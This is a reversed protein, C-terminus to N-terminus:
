RSAVVPGLRGECVVRGDDGVDADTEDEAEHRAELDEAMFSSALEALLLQFPHSIPLIASRLGFYFRLYALHLVLELGHLLTSPELGPPIRMLSQQILRLRPPVSSASLDVSVVPVIGVVITIM